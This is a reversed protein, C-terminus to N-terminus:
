GRWSTLHQRKRGFLCLFASLAAQISQTFDFVFYHDLDAFSSLLLPRSPFRVDNSLVPPSPSAQQLQGMSLPQRHSACGIEIISKCLITIISM